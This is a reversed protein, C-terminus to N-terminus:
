CQEVEVLEEPLHVCVTYSMDEFVNEGRLNSLIEVCNDEGISIMKYGFGEDNKENLTKLVNHERQYYDWKVWEYEVLYWNIAKRILPKSEMTDRTDMVEKLFKYAEEECCITVNSRYSM